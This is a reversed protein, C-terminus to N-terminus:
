RNPVYAYLKHWNHEIIYNPNADLIINELVVKDDPLHYTCISLKPSFKRMVEKAGQLMLREAGEIDSKIFDVMEISNIKVFDDITIAEVEISRSIDSLHYNPNNNALLSHSTSNTESVSFNVKGVKDFLAFPAININPYVKKIKELCDILDPVPEFAYVNAKKSAAISAFIGINAGCDFVVDDKNIVVNNYEYKGESMYPFANDIAPIILDPMELNFAIKFTESLLYPNLIKFEIKDFTKLSIFENSIDIDYKSIYKTANFQLFENIFNRDFDIIKDIGINILGEISQTKFQNTNMAVIITAGEQYIKEFFSKKIIESGRYEKEILYKDDVFFGAIRIDNVSLIHHVLKADYGAGYIYIISNQEQEIFKDIKSSM